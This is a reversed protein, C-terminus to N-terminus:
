PRDLHKGSRTVRDEDYEKRVYWLVVIIALLGGLTLEIKVFVEQTWPAFWLQAVGLVVGLVFVAVGSLLLKKM